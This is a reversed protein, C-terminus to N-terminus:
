GGKCSVTFKAVTIEQEKVRDFAELKVEKFNGSFGRNERLNAVFRNVADFEKDSDALFATGFMRLEMRGQSDRDLNFDSLWVGEPIAKPIADLTLTIGTQAKVMNELNKIKNSYTSRKGMLDNYSANIDVTKVAPTQKVIDKLEQGAQQVGYLGYGFVGGLILIGAAVARYDIRVGELLASLDTTFTKEKVPRPRHKLGVINVKVKTHVVGRLAASYARILGSSYVGQKGILRSLDLAHIGIGSESMFAELGAKHESSGHFYIKKINKAPYKRHYYDLSIRLETKLKDSLDGPGSQEPVAVSELLPDAGAILNIDRSFVPLGGELITFNIEEESHLDGELVGVVGSDNIGALKFSRLVSFASFEVAPVKINLQALFSLHRELADKKIGVFLVCNSKSSKNFEAQYDSVLEDVRFPIYKKAEFFVAEHLENKPMVPMDFTRIILEKGPLCLTAEGGEIKNKRLESKFVAITEIASIEADSSDQLENSPAASPPTILFSNLLKKAKTEVIHVQKSGFYIGLHNM